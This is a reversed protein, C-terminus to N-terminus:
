HQVGEGDVPSVLLDPHNAHLRQVFKEGIDIRIFELTPHPSM